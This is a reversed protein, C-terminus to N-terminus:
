TESRRGSRDLGLLPLCPGLGDIQVDARPKTGWTERTLVFRLMPAGGSPRAATMSGNPEYGLARSVGLSGPNDAFADSEARSAGLGAFALQLVASRMERGIGRRQHARALFSFSNVTRRRRFDIGTINQQGIVVGDMAVAFSLHWWEPSTRARAGWEGMVAKWESEPPDAYFTSDGDFPEEGETIVMGPRRFGALTALDQDTAYRLTLRPTTLVLDFLPWINPSRPEM